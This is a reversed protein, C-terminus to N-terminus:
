HGVVDALTVRVMNQTDTGQADYKDSGIAEILAQHKTVQEGLPAAAFLPDAAQLAEQFVEVLLETGDEQVTSLVVEGEGIVPAANTRILPM